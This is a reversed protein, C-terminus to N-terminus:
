EREAVVKSIPAIWCTGRVFESQGAGAIPRHDSLLHLIGNLMEGEFLTRVTGALDVDGKKLPRYTFAAAHFHGKPWEDEGLPRVMPRLAENDKRSAVGVIIAVGRAYVPETTFRLWSRIEPHSFPNAGGELLAPSRKLASGVLGAVEVAMVVGLADSNVITMLHATLNRLSVNADPKSEFSVVHSFRGECVLGHLTQLGSVGGGTTILYDPVNGRDTPQYAVAGGVAIFEGFRARCDAFGGGLAGVGLAFAGAPFTLACCDKEAYGGRRLADPNGVARCTLSANAEQPHIGLTGDPTELTRKMEPTEAPKPAARPTALALLASVRMLRLVEQVQPSPEAISLAGDLTQLQKRFKLLIGIGASSIYSIDSLNLVIHRRGERIVASIEQELHSAWYADLRGSLALELVNGQDKRIIEM